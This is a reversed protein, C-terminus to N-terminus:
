QGGGHGVGQGSSHGTSHGGGQGRGHGGGQGTAVVRAMVRDSRDQDSDAVMAELEENSLFFGMM